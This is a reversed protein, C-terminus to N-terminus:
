WAVDIVGFRIVPCEGKAEYLCGVRRDDLRV